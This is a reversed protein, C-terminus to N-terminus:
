GTFVGKLRSDAKRIHNARSEAATPRFDTSIENVAEEDTGLVAFATAVEDLPVGALSGQWKM